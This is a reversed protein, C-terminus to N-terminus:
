GLKEEHLGGKQLFCHAAEREPLHSGSEGTTRVPFVAIPSSVPNLRFDSEHVWGRPRSALLWQKNRIAM